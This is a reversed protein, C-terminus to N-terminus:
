NRLGYLYLAVNIASLLYIPFFLVMSIFSPLRQLYCSLNVILLIVSLIIEIILIKKLISTKKKLYLALGTINLISFLGM